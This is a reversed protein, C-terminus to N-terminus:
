EERALLQLKGLSQVLTNKQVIPYRRFFRCGKVAIELEEPYTQIGFYANDNKWSHVLKFDNM